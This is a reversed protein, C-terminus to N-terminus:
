TLEIVRACIDAILVAKIINKQCFLFFFRILMTTNLVNIHSYQSININMHFTM